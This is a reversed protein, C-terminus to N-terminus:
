AGLRWGFWTPYHMVKATVLGCLAGLLLYSIIGVSSAAWISRRRRVVACLSVISAPLVFAFSCAFAKGRKVCWPCHPGMAHHINCASSAHALSCGCRFMAGCLPLATASIVAITVALSILLPRTM